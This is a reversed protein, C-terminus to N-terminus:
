HRAKKDAAARDVAKALTKGDVQLTSHLVIDQGFPNPVRAARPHTRTRASPDDWAGPLAPAFPMVTKRKPADHDRGPVLPDKVDRWLEGWGKKGSYQSLAPHKKAQDELALGVAIWGAARFAKGWKSGYKTGMGTVNAGLQSAAADAAVNAALTTAVRKSMARAMRKGAMAGLASFVGFHSALLGVTILKGWVNAHWWATVFAKAARPAMQGAKDAILPAAEDFAEALQKGLHMAGVQKRLEDLYPHMMARVATASVDIKDEFTLDKRGWVRKLSKNLRLLDPEMRVFLHDLRRSVADIAPAVGQGIAEEINGWSVHLRDLATAQAAASGGFEKTLEGLIVKQASARDGEETFLKIRDEQSKSFSVGIRQLRKFGREPDNLAKGVQLAASNLDMGMAASLDGVAVTAQNFVDNGAGSENRIQRFSLLLNQSGRIAEDDKGTKRSLSTSLTDVDKATVGAKQGTSRLVAGTQMVIKRKDQWAKTSRVLEFVLGGGIVAGTRGAIGGIRRLDNGATRGASSAARLGVAAIKGKAGLKSLSRAMSDVNRGAAKSGRERVNITVDSAM